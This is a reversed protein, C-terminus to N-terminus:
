TVDCRQIKTTRKNSEKKNILRKFDDIQKRKREKKRSLAKRRSPQNHISEIGAIRCYSRKPSYPTTSFLSLLASPRLLSGQVLSEISM